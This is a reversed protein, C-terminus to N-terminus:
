CQTRAEPRVAQYSEATPKDSTKTGLAQELFKSADRCSSGSYGKTELTANGQPDIVIEITPM